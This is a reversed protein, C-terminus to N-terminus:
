RREAIRATSSRVILEATCRIPSMPAVDTGRLVEMLMQAGAKGLAVFDQRMTTLPPDFYSALPMDDFGIVSLQEPVALGLDRAARIIGVAMRDNQAVIATPIRGSRALAILAAHGSTATWDGTCTWDPDPTVGAATLASRYGQDRAQVCDESWPGTVQAIATHGLDLMHQTAQRAALYNDLYVLYRADRRPCGGLLVAPVRESLRVHRDDLYPSIILVGDVRRFEILEEILRNFDNADRVAASLLYYGHERAIMEAGEMISAYTFDTLNPALCALTETRGQAMSRAIAHPRYGLEAVAAEVRTRTEELVGPMGNIVRSVTQHSVGAVVAVDRLTPRRRTAQAM